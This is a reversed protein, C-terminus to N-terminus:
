TKKLVEGDACVFLSTQQRKFKSYLKKTVDRTVVNRLEGAQSLHEPDTSIGSDGDSKKDEPHSKLHARLESRRQFRHGLLCDEELCKYGDCPFRARM